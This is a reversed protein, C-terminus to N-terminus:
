SPASSGKQAAKFVSDLREGIFKIHSGVIEDFRESSSKEEIFAILRNIFNDPGLKIKQEKGDIKKIARNM